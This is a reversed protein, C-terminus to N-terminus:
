RSIFCIIEGNNETGLAINIVDTDADIRTWHSLSHLKMIQKDYERAEISGFDVRLVSIEIRQPLRLSDKMLVSDVVM